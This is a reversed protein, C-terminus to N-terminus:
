ADDVLANRIVVKRLSGNKAPKVVRTMGAPARQVRPKMAKPHYKAAVKPKRAYGMKAM